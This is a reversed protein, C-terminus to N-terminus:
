DVYLISFRFEILLCLDNGKIMIVELQNLKSTQTAWRICVKSGKNLWLYYGQFKIELGLMMFDVSDCNEILLQSLWM